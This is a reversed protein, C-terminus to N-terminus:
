RIIDFYLVLPVSLIIHIIGKTVIGGPMRTITWIGKSPLGDLRVSRTAVKCTPQTVSGIIPISPTGPYAIIVVNDSSASSCQYIKVSFIYTGPDINSIATSDGTGSQIVNDPSRTLRWYGTAPEPYM